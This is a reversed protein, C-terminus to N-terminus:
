MPVVGDLLGSQMVCISHRPGKDRCRQVPEAGGTRMQRVDYIHFLRGALGVVVDDGGRGGPVDVGAPQLAHTAACGVTRAARRMRPM